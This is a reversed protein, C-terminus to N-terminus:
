AMYRNSKPSLSASKKIINNMSPLVPSQTIDAKPTYANKSVEAVEEATM